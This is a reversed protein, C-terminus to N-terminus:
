RGRVDQLVYVYGRRAYFLAREIYWEVQKAGYPSRELIVPWRGEKVPLFVNASLKVGDRMVAKQDILTRVEYDPRSLLDKWRPREGESAKGAELPRPAAALPQQGLTTGGAITAGA